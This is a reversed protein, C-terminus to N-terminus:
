WAVPLATVGRILRDTHWQVQDPDVALRLAPFRTLLATMAVQLETRALQAGLCHHLGHGFTLHSAANGRTLDLRNPDAFAAPDRNAVYFDVLVVDGAHVIQGGLETDETARRAFDVSAGLPIWRLLEEVADPVGAPGGSVLEEWRGQSLLVFVGNGIQAATTEHGSILLTTALKVMEIESLRGGGDDRAAALESLLDDAPEERRRGILEALYNDLNNRAAKSEEPTADGGLSLTLETWHRFQGHDSNPVGLLECIVKVPLPWALADALDAPQGAVVMDDLLSNVIDEIDPWMQHVRRPTFAKTVLGRLRTHDPPDKSILMDPPDPHPRARPTDERGAAQARSFRRHDTFVAKVDEYRTVLWAFGEGYPMRIPVLGPQKLAEFYRPHIDLGTVPGFPYTEANSTESTVTM